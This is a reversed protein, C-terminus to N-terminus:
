KPKGLWYAMVGGFALVLAGIVASTIEDTPVTFLMTFAAMAIFAVVIMLSITLSGGTSDYRRVVFLLWPVVLALVFVTLTAPYNLLKVVPPLQVADPM